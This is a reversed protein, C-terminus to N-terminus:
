LATDEIAGREDSRRRREVEALLRRLVPVAIQDKPRGAAAKSRIIDPLSAVHTTTGLVDIVVARRRLDIFGKTGSPVFCIDLDGFDTVLNWVDANALSSGDHSFVLGDPLGDSRIRARLSRLAASLRELNDEGSAPTIDLDTTVMDSGHLAAALGGIMVYDVGHEALVALIREPRFEVM